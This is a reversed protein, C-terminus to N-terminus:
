LVNEWFFHYPYTHLSSSRMYYFFYVLFFLVMVNRGFIAVQNWRKSRCQIIKPMLLPIFIIYYYNMRMALSHLPAFFQILVSFLLFNRLGITEKDIARDDPILYAFVTLVLFLILMMYAGTTEETIEFRTYQELITGLTGFIQKNYMFAVFMMPAIIILSKSKIQAHYLPYMFFLMFASSHFATAAAVALLFPILKKRCVFEYAVFGIAIALMQRIGSFMMVFTSMCSFLVITLSSDICLRLYTPFMLVSVMIALISLFIQPNVSLLSVLKNLYVYGIEMEYGKLRNWESNSFFNFYNIYNQTDNGIVAHRLMVLVTLFTCFFILAIKNKKQYDIGKIGIHQILIPVLLLVIYPAM